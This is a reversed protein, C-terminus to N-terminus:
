DSRTEAPEEGDEELAVKLAVKSEAVRKELDGRAKAAAEKGIRLADEAKQKKELVADRAVEVRESVEEMAKDYGEEVSEKLGAIREEAGERIRRAGERLEEQTERGSKPALLLATAAGLIAGWLFAGVSSGSKEIIIYPDQDDESM